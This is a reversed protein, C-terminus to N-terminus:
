HTKAIRQVDTIAQDLIQQQIKPDQLDKNIKEILYAALQKQERERISAEHRVWSDLTTKVEAAVAVKQKLEFAEAELKATERSLEFLAKTVDVLDRMQGAEDIREQVAAKHDERAQILVNKIRAVHEDAMNMFPERLYKILLGLLGTTAILVLTEENFVYIEKSILFTALGTSLTVFGTKTVLSNGPLSNIISNAKEKPEVEKQTTYHRVATAGLSQRSANILSPRAAIAASAAKKSILRLAM